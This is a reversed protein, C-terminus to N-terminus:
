DSHKRQQRKKLESKPRNLMRSRYPSDSFPGTIVMLAIAGVAIMMGVLSLVVSIPFIFFTAGEIM